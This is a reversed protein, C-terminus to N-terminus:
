IQEKHQRQSKTEESKADTQQETIFKTAFDADQQTKENQNSSASDGPSSQDDSIAKKFGKILAGLDYGLTRLKNTGFLLAMIVAIILLKWISIGGM